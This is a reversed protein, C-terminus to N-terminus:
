PEATRLRTPAPRPPASSQDFYIREHDRAAHHESAYLPVARDLRLIALVRRVRPGVDVLRLWGGAAEAAKIAQLLVRIGIADTFALGGAEIALRPTDTLLAHLHFHLDCATELDLEGILRLLVYGDRRMPTVTLAPM